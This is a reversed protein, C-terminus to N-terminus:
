LQSIIITESAQWYLAASDEPLLLQETVNNDGWIPIKDTMKEQM